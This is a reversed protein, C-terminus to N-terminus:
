DSRPPRDGHPDFVWLQKGTKADLAVVRSWSTSVYLVGDIMLPTAEQARDVDLDYSWALGLRGVNRDNIQDLSSYRDESYNLGVTLWSAPEAQRADAIRKQDVPRESGSVDAVPAQKAGHCGGLALLSLSASIFTARRSLAMILLTGNAFPSKSVARPRRSRGVGAPM